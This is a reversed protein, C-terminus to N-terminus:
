RIRIDAQLRLTRLWQTELQNMRQEILIQAIRSSVQPLPPQPAGARQLEPLLQQHYYNEIARPEIHIQSRFRQDLYRSLNLEVAIREQVEEQTLGYVALAARWDDDHKWSPVTERLELVRRAIEEPGAPTFSGSRMQDAILQQDILRELTQKRDDVTVDNLPRVNIFCEFRVAEEWESKLIAHRNVTAVIRDIVEASSYLRSGALILAVTLWAHRAKGYGGSQSFNRM